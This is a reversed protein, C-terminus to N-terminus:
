TLSWDDIGQSVEYFHARQRTQLGLGTQPREVLAFGFGDKFNSVSGVPPEDKFLHRQIVQGPQLNGVTSRHRWSQGLLNLWNRCSQM